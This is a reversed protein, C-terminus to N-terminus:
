PSEAGGFIVQGAIRYRHGQTATLFEVGCDAVGDFLAEALHVADHRFDVTALGHHDFARFHEGIITAGGGALPYVM